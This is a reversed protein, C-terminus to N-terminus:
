STDGLPAVEKRPICWITIDLIRNVFGTKHNIKFRRFRHPTNEPKRRLALFGTLNCPQQIPLQHRCRHAIFLRSATRKDPPVTNTLIVKPGISSHCPNKPILAIKPFRNIPFPRPVFDAVYMRDFYASFIPNNHLVSMLNDHRLLFKIACLCCHPSKHFMLTWFLMVPRQAAFDPTTNAAICHVICFPFLQIKM